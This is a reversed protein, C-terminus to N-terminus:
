EQKKREKGPMARPTITFKCSSCKFTKDIMGPQSTLVFLGKKRDDFCGPCLWHHAEESEAAKQFVYVTLGSDVEQLRYKTKEEEWRDHSSIEAELEAKVASLDMHQSHLEVLRGQLEIVNQTLAAAEEKTIPKSGLDKVSKALGSVEKLVTAWTM